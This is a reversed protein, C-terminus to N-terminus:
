RTTVSREGAFAIGGPIERLHLQNAELGADPDHGGDEDLLPRDDGVDQRWRELTVGVSADLVVDQMECFRDGIWPNLANAMVKAQEFSVRGDAMRELTVDLHKRLVNAVRM